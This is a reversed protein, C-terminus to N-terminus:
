YQNSQLLMLNNTNTHNTWWTRPMWFCTKSAQQFDWTPLCSDSHATCCISYHSPKLSNIRTFPSFFFFFCWPHGQTQIHITYLVKTTKLLFDLMGGKGPGEPMHPLRQPPVVAGRGRNVPFFVVACSKQQDQWEPTCFPQILAAAVFTLKWDLLTLEPTHVQPDHAQVTLKFSEAPCLAQPLPAAGRWLLRCCPAAPLPNAICLSISCHGQVPTTNLLQEKMNFSHPPSLIPWISYLSM